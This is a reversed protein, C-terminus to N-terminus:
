EVTLTGVMGSERHGAVACYIEYTGAATADFEITKSSGPLISGTDANLGDITWTHIANGVNKFTLKVTAGKKVTITNPSFSYESGEVTMETVGEGVVTEPMDEEGSAPTGTSDRAEKEPFYDTNYWWVVFGVAVLVLILIPILKKM